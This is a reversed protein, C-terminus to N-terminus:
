PTGQNKGKPSRGKPKTASPPPLSALLREAYAVGADWVRPPRVIILLFAIWLFLLVVATVQTAPADRAIAWLATDGTTTQTTRTVVIAASACVALVLAAERMGLLNRWFGYAINDNHILPYKPGRRLDILRRIVARYIGDAADPDQAEASADPLRFDPALDQLAAHYARKTPM